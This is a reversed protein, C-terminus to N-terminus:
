RDRSKVLGADYAIRIIFSLRWDFCGRDDGRAKLSHLVFGGNKINNYSYLVFVGTV